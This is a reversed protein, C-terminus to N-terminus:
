RVDSTAVLNVGTDRLNKLVIDGTKLKKKVVAKNIEEMFLFIEKLPVEGDTKVSVRPFEKFVTKVTSTISRMPNQYEQIAYAKGKKCTNGTVEYGEAGEFLELSCGQPCTICTLTALKKRNDTVAAQKAM